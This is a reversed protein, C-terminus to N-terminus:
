QAPEGPKGRRLELGRLIVYAVLAFLFFVLLMWAVGQLSEIITRYVELTWRNANLAVIEANKAHPTIYKELAWVRVGSSVGVVFIAFKLYRQWAGALEASVLRALIQGIPKDFLLVVCVSTAVAILFTVGLLALFM